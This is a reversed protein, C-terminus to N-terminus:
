QPCPQLFEIAKVTAEIFDTHHTLARKLGLTLEISSVRTVAGYSMFKKSGIRCLLLM